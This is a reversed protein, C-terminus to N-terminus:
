PLCKSSLMILQLRSVPSVTVQEVKYFQHVRFLGRVDRGAAGAERRFCTSIGAYRVPLDKEALIDGSHLYNLGVEGTGSLYLDDALQYVDDRGTPFHGTGIFAAERAFSPLDVLTFGHEKMFQTAFRWIALEVEVMDGKLMFTRSGAIKGAGAPDAWGNLELLDVHDRPEFGFKPQEGWRRVEVNAEEDEGVPEDEGPINPVLLLLKNLAEQKERLGPELEKISRGVDRSREILAEREDKAASATQKSLVNREHRLEETKALLAKVDGHLALVADLDLDVSKVEIARRVVDPNQVIFDM